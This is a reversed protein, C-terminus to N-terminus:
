PTQVYVETFGSLDEILHGLQEYKSFPYGSNAIYSPVDWYQDQFEIIWVGRFALGFGLIVLEIQDYSALNNGGVTIPDNRIWCTFESYSSMSTPDYFGELLYNDKSEWSIWAPHSKDLAEGDQNEDALTQPVSHESVTAVYLFLM